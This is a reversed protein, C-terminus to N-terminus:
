HAGPPFGRKSLYQAAEVRCIEIKERMESSLLRAVLELSDWGSAVERRFRAAKEPDHDLVIDIQQKVAAFDCAAWSPALSMAMVIMGAACALASAKPL